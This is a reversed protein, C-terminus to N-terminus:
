NSAYIRTKEDVLGRIKNEKKRKKQITPVSGEWSLMSGITRARHKRWCLPEADYEFFSLRRGESM